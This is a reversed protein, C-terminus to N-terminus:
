QGPVWLKSAGGSSDGAAIESGGDPTWLGSTAAARQAQPLRVRGDPTILGTEIMFRFLLEKVGPEGFHDREIRKLLEQLGEYRGRLVRQEFEMVFFTGSPEGSEKAASIASEIHKFALDDDRETRALVSLISSKSLRETFEGRQLAFEALQRLLSNSQINAAFMFFVEFDEKSFSEYDAFYGLFPSSIFTLNEFKAREMPTLGVAEHAIKRFEQQSPSGDLSLATKEIVARAQIQGQPTKVLDRLTQGAAFDLPMDPLVETALRRHEENEIRTFEDRTITPPTYLNTRLLSNAVSYHGITEQEGLQVADGFIGCFDQLNKETTADENIIFEIRASRDTQKGFCLAQAVHKPIDNIGLGETSDIRDRDLFYFFARPPPGAGEFDDAQIREEVFRRSSRMSTLVDDLDGPVNILYRLVPKKGAESEATFAQVIGEAEVREVLMFADNEAVRRWSGLLGERDPVNGSLIAVNRILLPEEPAMELAKKALSVAKRFQGRRAAKGSNEYRKKWEFEAEPPPLPHNARRLILNDCLSKVYQALQEIQKDDRRLALAFDLHARAAWVDGLSLCGAGVSAFATAFGVPIKADPLNDMASQLAEYAEVIRGQNALMVARQELGVSHNPNSALFQENVEGAAEYRELSGLLQVKLSLLCDKPGSKELLRDLAELAAAPQRAEIKDFIEGLGSAVDKGCCFKIKKEQHVPCPQYIDFEM